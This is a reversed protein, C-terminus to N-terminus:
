MKFIVQDGPLISKGADWNLELVYRVATISPISKRSMPIGRNVSVVKFNKDIYIVALEIKTNKMWFFRQADNEFIFMLGQNQDMKECFMLGREHEADSSAVGTKFFRKEGTRSVITVRAEEPYGCVKEAFVNMSILLIIFFTVIRVADGTM